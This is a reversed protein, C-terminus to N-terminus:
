ALVCHHLVAACRPACFFLRQIRIRLARHLVPEFCGYKGKFREMYYLLISNLITQIDYSLQLMLNSLYNYVEHVSHTALMDIVEQIVTDSCKHLRTCIYDVTMTQGAPLQFSLAQLTNLYKRLDGGTFVYIEELAATNHPIREKDLIKSAVHVAATRPIPTFLMKVVRSQLSPILSYQFNGILCFRATYKMITDRLAVQADTTMSDAEDLIILKHGGNCCFMNSTSAFQIIQRRVVDVGREDSANLHLVMMNRASGYIERACSLITSTKGTGPPGYFFLHPFSDSNNNLFHKLIALIREHHMIDTLASPRYREVWPIGSNETTNKVTPPTTSM